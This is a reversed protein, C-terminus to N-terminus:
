LFILSSYTLALLLLFLVFCFLFGEMMLSYFTLQGKFYPYNGLTPYNTRKEESLDVKCM